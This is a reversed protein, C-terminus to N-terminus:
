TSVGRTLICNSRSRSRDRLPPKWAIPLWPYAPSGGILYIRGDVVSGSHVWRATPMEAKTTWSDTVPDYEEVVSFATYPSPGGGIAYIKGAVVCTSLLTRATPMDAKTTWIDDAAPSISSIGFVVAIVALIRSWEINATVKKM